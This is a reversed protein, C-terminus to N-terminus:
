GLFCLASRTHFKAASFLHFLLNAFLPEAIRQMGPDAIAAEARALEVFIGAEGKGHDESQRKRDARVCCNEGQHVREQQFAQRIWVRLTHGCNVGADDARGRGRIFSVVYIALLPLQEAVIDRCQDRGYRAYASRTDVQFCTRMNLVHLVTADRRVVEIHKPKMGDQAAVKRLVFITGVPGFSDNEAVAEPSISESRVRANKPLGDQESTVWKRHHSHQQRAGRSRQVRIHVSRELGAALAFATSRVEPADDPQAIASAPM